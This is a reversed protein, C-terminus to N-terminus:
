GEIEALGRASRRITEDAGELFFDPLVRFVEICVDVQGIGIELSYPLRAVRGQVGLCFVQEILGALKFILRCLQVGCTSGEGERSVVERRREPM